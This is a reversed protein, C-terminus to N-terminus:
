LVGAVWRVGGEPQHTIKLAGLGSVKLSHNIKAGM